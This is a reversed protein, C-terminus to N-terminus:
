KLDNILQKLSINEIKFDRRILGAKINADIDVRYGQATSENLGESFHKSLGLANSIDIDCIKWLTEVGYNEVRAPIKVVDNRLDFTAIRHGNNKLKLEVDRLEIKRYSENSVVIVTSLATFGKIEFDEAGEIRVKEELSSCSVGVLAILLLLLYNLRKM